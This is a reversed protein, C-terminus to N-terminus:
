PNREMKRARCSMGIVYAQDPNLYFGDCRPLVAPEVCLYKTWDGKRLGDVMEDPGINWIVLKNNGVSKLEISRSWGSDVIRYTGPGFPRGGDMTGHCAISGDPTIVSVNEPHSVSFYPHFGTTVVFRERGLNRMTLKLSLEAGLHVEYSLRFSGREELCFVASSEGSGNDLRDLTWERSFAFGHLPSGPDGNRGFWPWCIPVGGHCWQNTRHEESQNFFVEREGTPEYSLIRAGFTDICVSGFDNTLSVISALLFPIM